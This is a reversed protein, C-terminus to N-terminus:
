KEIPSFVIPEVNHSYRLCVCNWEKICVKAPDFSIWCRETWNWCWQAEDSKPTGGLVQDNGSFEYARLLIMWKGVGLGDRLCISRGMITVTSFYGFNYHARYRSPEWRRGYRGRPRGRLSMRHPSKPRVDIIQSPQADSSLLVVAGDSSPHILAVKWATSLQRVEM